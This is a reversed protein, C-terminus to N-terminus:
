RSEEMLSLRLKRLMSKKKSQHGSMRRLINDLAELANVIYPGKNLMVCEARVSMSADTIEARSPKGTKALNELVQTAWIVPVHAAECIWLIEEQVEAMREFGCEIALDGRAIMVGLPARRMGTLLLRPLNEFAKRTEIKLVIGVKDANRKALEEHLKLIDEPRQVFSYGIVDANKTVFDLDQLDKETLSHMNLESDPFNIGKDASLKSVEASTIEVKIQKKSISQIVGAIKGDDFYVREEKKLNQFVEPMTCSIQAPEILKGADDYEANKGPVPEALLFLTDGDKLMLSQEKAPLNRIKASDVSLQSHKKSISFLETGPGVYCTQSTELLCHNYEVKVVKLKRKKGRLDKCELVVDTSLKKLFKKSVPLQPISIDTIFNETKDAVLYVTAPTITKGKEDRVPRIKVVQPGPGIAGTRIKPGGLDMFVKCSRSLEREAKRLNEIMKEWVAPDDHACNIRMVDMGSAVLERVLQYHDAAQSPMTVMISVPRHESKGLLNRTHLELYDKGGKYDVPPTKRAFEPIRGLIYDIMNMVKIMSHQVHSEVRGLSSLGYSSLQNQFERIDEQRLAMYHLLNRISKEYNKSVAQIETEFRTELAEMRQWTATLKDYLQQLEQLEHEQFFHSQVVNDSM